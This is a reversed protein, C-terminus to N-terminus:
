HNFTITNPPETAICKFENIQDDLNLCIYFIWIYFVVSPWDWLLALCLCVCIGACVANTEYDYHTCQVHIYDLFIFRTLM